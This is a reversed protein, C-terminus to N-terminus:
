KFSGLALNQMVYMINSSLLILFNSFKINLNFVSKHFLFMLSLLVSLTEYYHYSCLLIIFIIVIILFKFSICLYMISDYSRIYLTKTVVLQNFNSKIESSVCLDTYNTLCFKNPRLRKADEVM